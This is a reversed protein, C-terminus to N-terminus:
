RRPREMIAIVGHLSIGASAGGGFVANITQTQSTTPSCAAVLRYGQAALANIKDKLGKVDYDGATLGKYKTHEIVEYEYYLPTNAAAKRREEELLKNLKIEREKQQAPWEDWTCQVGRGEEYVPIVYVAPDNRSVLEDLSAQLWKEELHDYYLFHLPKYDVTKQIPTYNM